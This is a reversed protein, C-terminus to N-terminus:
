RQSRRRESGAMPAVITAVLLWAIGSSMTSVIRLSNRASAFSKQAPVRLFKPTANCRGDIISAVHLWRFGGSAAIAISLASM